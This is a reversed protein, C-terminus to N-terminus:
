QQIYTVNGALATTGSQILCIGHGATTTRAITAGGNGLTLGGNAALSMGSAATTSGIAAVPTGTTCSAGTGGVLNIVATAGAVLSFSCIYVQTSGSPAVLQVTGSSTAIAVNTKTLSQCPDTSTSVPTMSAVGQVTVVNSSATGATGPASGAITATDTAVTVRPTGAGQAGTGTSVTTSGIQALSVGNTTGVTTQDIGVKGIIASGAVLAPLTTISGINWTGSQIASVTNNAFSGYFPTGTITITGASYASIRARLSTLANVPILFQGTTTTTIVSAGGAIPYAAVSFYTGVSDTGEFNITTGGSCAVSCNVDVLATSYNTVTLVTGNANGTAASQMTTSTTTGGLIPWTGSQAAQVALTGTGVITANLNAATAQTVATTSTTDLVAHLNTGTAQTVINTWTGSQSVSVATANSGTNALSVQVPASSTGIETGSANRLNVFGARNATMQWMGQQGNTLANSTATTQFFGGTGAFLSTGATFTAEDATSVGSGSCNACQVNLNNSTSAIVNGSGDVIQTKQSANTQNASTSAGTPLSVTGSINTINWTGSQLAKVLLNGANDCELPSGNTSTITTPSTNFQCGTQLWNAPAAVNQGVADMIGGANGVTRTTWIGSQTAPFVGGTGTVLMATGNAGTNAVSVQVPTSSTGIETGSANRLNTFAARNATLQLMGQQGNILANNTATTQFFGGTGAFLSTGATFSAEDTTSVGSGSCNACQVNLNNSTSAIVNGSGDVIQTKQNANTQNAATAAGTPLSVTGSVNTINWTGSQTSAFTTNGISGGVQFPSGLTTNITTQLASTAAGTPLSITGAINNINNTAGTLQTAFTGTGIVTANLNSATGQTVTVTSLPTLTTLQAATLVVPVSSGAVQQGLSYPWFTGTVPFTGGTGTVLWATTNATNGPQVTWTGSQTSAFSSNGISGGAQFPSGLTNNITTLGAATSAGTPLPLSTASIPQTVGSGDVKVAGSSSVAACQSPTTADCFLQQAYNIGGNLISGFITGSGQTVNYNAAISAGLGISIIAIAALIFKKM